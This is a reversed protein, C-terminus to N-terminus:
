QPRGTTTDNVQQPDNARKPDLRRELNMRAHHLRSRVTGIACSTVMAIESYSLEDRYRLM